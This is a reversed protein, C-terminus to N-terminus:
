QLLQEGGVAMKSGRLFRGALNGVQPVAHDDDVAFMAQDTEFAVHRAAFQQDVFGIFQAGVQGTKFFDPRFAAYADGM